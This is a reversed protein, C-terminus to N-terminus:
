GRLVPKRSITLKGGRSKIYERLDVDDIRAIRKNRSSMAVFSRDYDNIGGRAPHSVKSMICGTDRDM